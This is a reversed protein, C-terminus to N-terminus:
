GFADALQERMYEQRLKRARAESLYNRLVVEPSTSGQEAAVEDLSGLVVEMSSAYADYWFRRALKPSPTAGDIESPLGARDSLGTFRNWVTWRSIHSRNAHPSPFLYGRDTATVAALREDLVAHGYLLSVEGPGNKRDRFRIYPVADEPVDRVFQGARLRAVEGPRLGWACLAVVLLRESGTEAAHFLARVHNSELCPTSEGEDSASWDFEEDLGDAPNVGSRRRRILHAYWNSVALHIRRKTQDGDLDDHLRDFAAWCADVAEYAPTDGGREVPTVLDGTGNEARYARVYRNLRYRLAEISSAALGKRERRSSLFSELASVTRADDTAWEYGTERELGLDESWFEAFTTDHHERLAYLLPRFGHERLWCYTPRETKPDADDAAFEPAVVSWYADVLERRDLESWPTAAGQERDRDVEPDNVIRGGQWAAGPTTDGRRRAENRTRARGASM